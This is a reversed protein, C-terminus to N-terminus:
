KEKLFFAQKTTKIWQIERSAERNEYNYMVFAYYALKKLYKIKGSANEQM